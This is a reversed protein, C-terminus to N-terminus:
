HYFIGIDCFPFFNTIKFSLWSIIVFHIYKTISINIAIFSNRFINNNFYNEFDFSYINNLKEEIGPVLLIGDLELYEIEAVKEM